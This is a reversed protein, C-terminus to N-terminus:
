KIIRNVSRLVDEPVALRLKEATRLNVTYLFPISEGVPLTAPNAGKLIRDVYGAALESWRVFSPSWGLLAGAEALEAYPSFLPLHHEIALQAVIAAASRFMGHNTLVVAQSGSREAKAFAGTLDGPTHVEIGDVRLGLSEATRQTRALAGRGPLYTPNNFVTIHTVGPVLERLMALQETVGSAVPTFGTANAGPRQLTKTLGEAVPDFSWFVIPITSSAKMALLAETSGSAVLVRVGAQVLQAAQATIVNTLDAFGMAGVVDRLREEYIVERGEIYGLRTMADKFSALVAPRGPLPGMLIGIRIPKLAPVNDKAQPPAVTPVMARCTVIRWFGDAKLLVMTQLAASVSPLPKGDRDLRGTIGVTGDVIAVAPTIFRMTRITRTSTSARNVGAHNERESKEIETRGQGIKGSPFVVDGDALYLNALAASDHSNWARAYSSWLAKVAKEDGDTTGTQASSVFPIVYLVLKLVALAHNLYTKM